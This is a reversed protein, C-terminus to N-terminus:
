NSKTFHNSMDDLIKFNDFGATEFCMDFKIFLDFSDETKGSLIFSACGDKGTAKKIGIKNIQKEVFERNETKNNIITKISPHNNDINIDKSGIDKAVKIFFNNFTEPVHFSRIDDLIKFNDFGATEFCM